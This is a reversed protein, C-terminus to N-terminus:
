QFLVTLAQDGQGCAQRSLDGPHQPVPLIVVRFAIGQLHLVDKPRVVKIQLELVVADPLLSNHILADKPEMLLRADGHHTGIVCVVQSFLVGLGM